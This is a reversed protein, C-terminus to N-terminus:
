AGGNRAPLGEPAGEREFRGADHGVFGRRRNLGFLGVEGDLLAVDDEGRRKVAAAALAAAATAPVAGKEGAVV